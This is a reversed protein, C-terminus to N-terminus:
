KATFEYSLIDSYSTPLLMEIAQIHYLVLVFMVNIGCQLVYISSIWSNCTVIRNASLFVTGNIMFYLFHLFPSSAVIEGIIRSSPIHLIPLFYSVM